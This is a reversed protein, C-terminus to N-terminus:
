EEELSTALAVQWGELGTAIQLTFRPAGPSLGIGSSGFNSGADQLWEAIRQDVAAPSLGIAVGVERCKAAVEDKNGQPLRFYLSDVRDGDITGTLYEVPLRLIGGDHTPIEVSRFRDTTFAYRQDYMHVRQPGTIGLETATPMRRTISLVARQRLTGLSALLLGVLLAAAGLIVLM